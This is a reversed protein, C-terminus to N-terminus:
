RAARPRRRQVAEVRGAEGIPRLSRREVDYPFIVAVDRRDRWDRVMEGVMLVRWSDEEVRRRNFSATDAIFVPDANTQGTYGALKIRSELVRGGAELQERLRGAHGGQLSWPHSAFVQRDADEVSVFESESGPADFQRSIASWVLGESPDSPRGPEGRIGLVARIPQDSQPAQDSGLLIVTPTGHGPIYAGSTDIVATLDRTPLFQEVLPKGFQRTMFANGIILGVSGAAGTGPLALDFFRQTMPATLQFERVATSYLERYVRTLAPDKSTIYPPNGVVAHYSDATLIRNAATADETPYRHKLAGSFEVAEVLLETGRTGHLLSDGTAVNIEFDPADALRRIGSVKLAAVLLRLRAIAVAFPNIDVGNVADLVRQALERVPTGPEREQWRHVVRDFAGLLFHGSGCTPDIMRVEDLGFTEIAPDLTRDLIFEEIFEPTQLLAYQKRAHESLDQYLDGLFRTGLEPDTFDHRLTRGEDDTAWWLHLLAKAGDAAPEIQWLPNRKGFVGSVGPLHQYRRFVEILWERDGAIPNDAFFATRHDRAIGLREGPGSLLPPDGLGNDECFRVFVCALTWGSAVQALLDERWEEFSRDTRGASSAQEYVGRVQVRTEEHEETRTRLDDVLLDTVKRADTLLAEADIM